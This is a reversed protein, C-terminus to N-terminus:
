GYPCFSLLDGWRLGDLIMIAGKGGFQQDVKIWNRLAELTPKTEFLKYSLGMLYMGMLHMGM